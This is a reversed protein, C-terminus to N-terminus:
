LGFGLTRKIHKIGKELSNCRIVGYMLMGHDHPNGEDEIVVIVPKQMSKAWAIEMCTGISVKEAGLFNAFVADARKVDNYDNINVAEITYFDSKEYSCKLNEIGELEASERLPSLVHINTNYLADYIQKRWEQINDYSHGKIPGALYVERMQDSKYINSM